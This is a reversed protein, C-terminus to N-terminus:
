SLSNAISRILKRSIELQQRVDLMQRGAPTQSQLNALLHLLLIPDNPNAIAATPSQGTPSVEM